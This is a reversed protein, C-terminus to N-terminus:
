IVYKLKKNYNIKLIQIIIGHMLVHKLVILLMKMMFIKIIGITMKVYIISFVSINIMMKDKQLINVVM